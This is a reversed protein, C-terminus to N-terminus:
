RNKYYALTKKLGSSFDYKPEWGLAKKAKSNDLASHLIDGERAERYEAELQNDLYSNLHNLLQNVSNREATSINLVKNNAKTLALLNAEVIDEVYIFDRTQKGDGFIIPKKNDLIRDVFIAVVGGEGKPDQRPGYVNAYRLITYDLEHLHQYIRLYHEPTYKSIGYASMPKIPHSEDIPLYEPEGYVAASSAYVIKKVDNEAAVELLNITGKINNDADFAPDKLSLQVDIQAAQHIIHTINEEKIIQNVKEDRLDINYFKAKPNIFEKHGTLFNDIVVVKHELEILRDVINSGIFGAGGTVLIKM